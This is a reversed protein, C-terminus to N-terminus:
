RHEETAAKRQLDFITFGLRRLLRQFLTLPFGVVNYYCGDIRKIFIRGLGQIAYAGAKDFPEGTEVYWDIEHPDLPRFEVQTVATGSFVSGKWKLAIGTIVQHRRGGLLRLMAKAEQPDAPKGLIARNVVVLTDMAIILANRKKCKLAKKVALKTAIKRPNEGSNWKERIRPICVQFDINLSELMEQRRPSESALVVEIGQIEVREKM